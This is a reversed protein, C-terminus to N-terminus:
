MSIKKSTATTKTVVKSNTVLTVYLLHLEHTIGNQKHIFNAVAIRLRNTKWSSSLFEIKQRLGALKYSIL